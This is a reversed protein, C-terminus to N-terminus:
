WPAPAGPDPPVATGQHFVVRWAGDRRRWVSSRRTRTGGHHAVYTVLVVDPAVVSGRVDDAVIPPQGAAGLGSLLAVVTARDWTEGSTGIEAFDPDLLAELAERSARTRPDLLALERDVVAQLDPDARSM